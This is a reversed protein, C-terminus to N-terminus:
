GIIGSQLKMTKIKAHFSPLQNINDIEDWVCDDFTTIIDWDRFTTKCDIIKIGKCRLDNVIKNLGYDNSIEIEFDFDIGNNPQNLVLTLKATGTKSM